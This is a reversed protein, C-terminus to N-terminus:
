QQCEAQQSCPQERYASDADQECDSKDSSRISEAPTCSVADGVIKVCCALAESQQQSAAEPGVCVGSKCFGIEGCAEGDPKYAGNGLNICSLIGPAESSGETLTKTLFFIGTYAGFVIILGILAGSLVGKGKTVMTENGSSILMLFGGYIFLALAVSGSIGLILNAINIFTFVICDLGPTIISARKRACDPVITLANAAVPAILLSFVIIFLIVKHKKFM